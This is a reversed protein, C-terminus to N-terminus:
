EYLLATRIKDITQSWILLYRRLVLGRMPIDWYVYIWRWVSGSIDVTPIATVSTHAPICGSEDTFVDVKWCLQKELHCCCCHVAVRVTDRSQDHSRSWHICHNVKSRNRFVSYGSLRQISITWRHQISAGLLLVAQRITCWPDALGYSLGDKRDSVLPSM